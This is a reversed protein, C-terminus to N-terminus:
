CFRINTCKFDFDNQEFIQNLYEVMGDEDNKIYYDCIKEFEETTLQINEKEKQNSLNDVILKHELLYCPSGAGPENKRVFFLWDLSSIKELLIVLRDFETKKYKNYIELLEIVM